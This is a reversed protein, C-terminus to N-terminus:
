GGNEEEECWEFITLFINEFIELCKDTLSIIAYKSQMFGQLSSLSIISFCLFFVAKLNFEEKIPSSRSQFRKKKTFRKSTM